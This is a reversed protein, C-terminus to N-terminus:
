MGQLTINGAEDRLTRNNLVDKIKNPIRYVIISLTSQTPEPLSVPMHSFVDFTTSELKCNKCTLLSRMQGYFTFYMFSWDRRLGNSWHELSLEAIERDKSEPNAIFPKVTRLNLEEHLADILFALFEQSDQQDFGQFQESFDSIIKKFHRPIITEDRENYMQQITAAFVDVFEGQFGEKNKM